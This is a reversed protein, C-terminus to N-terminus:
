SNIGNVLPEFVGGHEDNEKFEELAVNDTLKTITNKTKEINENVFDSMLGFEDKSDIDINSVTKTEKNLYLFFSQLL